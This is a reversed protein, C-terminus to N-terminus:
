VEFWQWHHVDNPDEPVVLPDPPAGLHAAIKGLMQWDREDARRGRPSLSGSLHWSYRGDSVRTRSLCLRWGRLTCFPAPRLGADGGTRAVTRVSSMWEALPTRAAAEALDRAAESPMPNEDTQAHADVKLKDLDRKWTLFSTAM